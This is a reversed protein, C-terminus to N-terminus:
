MVKNYRVLEFLTEVLFLDYVVPVLAALTGVMHKLNMDAQQIVQKSHLTDHSLMVLFKAISYIFHSSIDYDPMTEEIM